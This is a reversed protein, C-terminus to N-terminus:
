SRKMVDYGLGSRREGRGPRKRRAMWVHPKGDAGRALQWRVPSQLRTTGPTARPGASVPRRGAM